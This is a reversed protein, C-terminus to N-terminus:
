ICVPDDCAPEVDRRDAQGPACPEDALQEVEAIPTGRRTIQGAKIAGRGNWCRTTLGGSSAWRGSGIVRDLRYRGALTRHAPVVVATTDRNPRLDASRRSPTRGSAALMTRQRPAPTEASDISVAANDVGRSSAAHRSGAATSAMGHGSFPQSYVSRRIGDTWAHEVHQAVRHPPANETTRRRRTATSRRRCEIRASNPIEGARGNRLM